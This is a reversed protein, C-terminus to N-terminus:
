GFYYIWLCKTWAWFIRLNARVNGGIRPRSRRPPPSYVLEGIQLGRKKAILLLEAGFTEGGVLNYLKLTDSKFARFNSFTDKVGLLRGLTKSAVKESFRPLTARSAVAVDNESLLNALSPIYLPDNELDADITVVIPYKALKMGFLLGKTQGERKKAFAVDALSKAIDLTRDISSDDVVIIEHPCGRLVERVALVLRAVNEEENWTTTVVSIGNSIAGCVASGKM